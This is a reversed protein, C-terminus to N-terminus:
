VCRSVLHIVAQVSDHPVPSILELITMHCKGDTDNIPQHVSDKYSIFVKLAQQVWWNKIYNQIRLVLKSASAELRSAMIKSFGVEAVWIWCGTNMNSSVLGYSRMYGHKGHYINRRYCSTLKCRSRLLLAAPKRDTTSRHRLIIIVFRCVICELALFIGSTYGCFWTRPPCQTLKSMLCCKVESKKDVNTEERWVLISLAQLALNNGLEKNM